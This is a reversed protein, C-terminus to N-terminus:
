YRIGAFHPSFQLPQPCSSRFFARSVQHKYEEFEYLAFMAIQLITALLSLSDLECKTLSNTNITFASVKKHWSPGNTTNPQFFQL